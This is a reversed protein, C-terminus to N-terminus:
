LKKRSYTKIVLGFQNPGIYVVSKYIVFAVALVLAAIPVYPIINSLVHQV